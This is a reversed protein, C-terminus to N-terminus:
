LLQYYNVFQDESLPIGATLFYKALTHADRTVDKTKRFSLIRKLTFGCLYGDNLKIISQKKNTEKTISLSNPSFVINKHYYKKGKEKFGISELQAAALNVLLDRATKARTSAVVDHQRKFEYVRGLYGKVKQRPGKKTSVSEVLYAYPANNIKKIRVFSMQNMVSDILVISM